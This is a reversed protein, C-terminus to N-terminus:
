GVVLGQKPSQSHTPINKIPMPFLLSHFYTLKKRDVNHIDAWSLGHYIIPGKWESDGQLDYELANSQRCVLTMSNLSPQFSCDYNSVGSPGRSSRKDGEKRQTVPLMPIQYKRLSKFGKSPFM